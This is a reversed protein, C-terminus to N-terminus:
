SSGHCYVNQLCNQFTCCQFERHGTSIQNEHKLEDVWDCSEPHSCALQCYLDNRQVSPPTLVHPSCSRGPYFNSNYDYNQQVTYAQQLHNVHSPIHPQFASRRGQSDTISINDTASRIDQKSSLKRCSQANIFSLHNDSSYAKPGPLITLSPSYVSAYVSKPESLNQFHRMRNMGCPELPSNLPTLLVSSSLHSPLRSEIYSSHNVFARSNHDAYTSMESELIGSRVQLSTMFQELKGLSAIEPYPLPRCNYDYLSQEVRSYSEHALSSFNVMNPVQEGPSCPSAIRAVSKNLISCNERTSLKTDQQHCEAVTICTGDAIQRTEHNSLLLISQSGNTFSSSASALVSDRTVNNFDTGVFMPTCRDLVRGSGGPMSTPALKNIGDSLKGIYFGFPKEYGPVEREEAVYSLPSVRMGFYKELRKEEEPECSGFLGFESCSTNSSSEARDEASRKCSSKSRYCSEKINDSSMSSCNDTNPTQMHSVDEVDVNENVLQEKNWYSDFERGNENSVDRYNQSKQQLSLLKPFTGNIKLENSEVGHSAHSKATASVLSCCVNTAPFSTAMPPCFLPESLANEGVNSFWQSSRGPMDSVDFKLSRDTLELEQKLCQFRQKHMADLEVNFEFTNYGNENSPSSDNCDLVFQQNNSHEKYVGVVVEPLVESERDADIIARLNKVQALHDVDFDEVDQGFVPSSDTDHSIEHINRSSQMVSKETSSQPIKLLYKCNQALM